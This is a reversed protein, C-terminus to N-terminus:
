GSAAREDASSSRVHPLLLDHQGVLLPPLVEFSDAVVDGEERHGFQFPQPAPTLTASM